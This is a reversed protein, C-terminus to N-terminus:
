FHGEFHLFIIAVGGGGGPGGGRGRQLPQHRSSFQLGRWTSAWPSHLYTHLGHFMERVGSRGWGAGLVKSSPDAGGLPHPYRLFGRMHTNLVILAVLADNQPADTPTGPVGAQRGGGGGGWVRM